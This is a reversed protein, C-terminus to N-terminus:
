YIIVCQGVYDPDVYCYCMPWRESRQELGYNIKASAREPAPRYFILATRQKRRKRVGKYFSGQNQPLVLSTHHM